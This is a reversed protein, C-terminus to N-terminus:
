VASCSETYAITSEGRIYNREKDGSAGGCWAARSGEVLSPLFKRLFKDRLDYNLAFALNKLM